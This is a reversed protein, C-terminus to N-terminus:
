GRGRGGADRGGVGAVGALGVDLDLGVLGGDNVHLREGLLVQRHADGGDFSLGNPLLLGAVDEAAEQGGDSGRAALYLVLSM